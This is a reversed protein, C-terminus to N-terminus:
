KFKEERKVIYDKGLYCDEAIDYKNKYLLYAISLYEGEKICTKNLELEIDNRSSNKSYKKLFNEFGIKNYEKEIQRNLTFGDFYLPKRNTKRNLKLDKNLVEVLFIDFKIFEESYNEKYDRFLDNISRQVIMTDNIMIYLDLSSYVSPIEDDIASLKQIMQASFSDQQRQCSYLVLLILFLALFKKM